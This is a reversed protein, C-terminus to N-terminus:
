WPFVDLMDGPHYETDAGPFLAMANARSTACLDASGVWPVTAVTYGTSTATLRAPHFTPRTGRNFYTSTLSARLPVPEAPEVGMLCRLATRVFFECCVMSSVPNGPLGFVYCCRGAEQEFVGFWLPQGPKLQVKHFIERVGLEGLVGPVLDLKGASVGGSMLLVDAQLGRSIKERLDEPNDRAIGLPVPTAGAQRLQSCLMTENSNRIQGPGPTAAVPVLEDGTALVAVQPRPFVPVRARGMEALCGLQQSRLETGATLVIDGARVSAGRPLVSRGPKPPTTELLVVDEGDMRSHEVQVVADAGQPLPAGTMIRTANGPQLIKQPVQGAMVEECVHLRVSTSQVDISRVAYGDMLAKDFPPSDDDSAVSEALVLGQANDLEVRQPPLRAVTRVILALAESVSLM